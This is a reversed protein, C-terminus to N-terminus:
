VFSSVVVYFLANLKLESNRKSLDLILEDYIRLISVSYEKKQRPTFLHRFPIAVFFTM